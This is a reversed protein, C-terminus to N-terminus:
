VVRKDPRLSKALSNELEVIKTKLDLNEINMGSYVKHMEKRLGAHDELTAGALNKILESTKEAYICVCLICCCFPSMNTSRWFKCKQLKRLSAEVEEIRKVYGTIRTTSGQLEEVSNLLLTSANQYENLLYSYGLAGSVAFGLLFGTIGGRFGGISRKVKVTPVTPSQTVVTPQPPPPPPTVVTPTVPVERPVTSVTNQAVRVIRVSSFARRSIMSCSNHCHSLPIQLSTSYIYIYAHMCAHMHDLQHISARNVNFASRTNM